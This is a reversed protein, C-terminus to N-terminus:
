WRRSQRQYFISIKTEKKQATQPNFEPDKPEFGVGFVLGGLLWSIESFPKPVNSRCFTSRCYNQGVSIQGVSNQAVFIKVSLIKVLLFKSL